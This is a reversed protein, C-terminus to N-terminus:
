GTHTAMVASESDVASIVAGAMVKMVILRTQDAKMLHLGTM